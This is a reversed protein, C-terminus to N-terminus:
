DRSERAKSVGITRGAYQSFNLSRIAAEAASADLMSVIAFGQSRGTAPNMAIEVTDVRGFQSFTARLEHEATASPINGVHLRTSM